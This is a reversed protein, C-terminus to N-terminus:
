EYQNYNIIDNIINIEATGLSIHYIGTTAFYGTSNNEETINVEVSGIALAQTLEQKSLGQLVKKIALLRLSDIAKARKEAITVIRRAYFKKRPKIM